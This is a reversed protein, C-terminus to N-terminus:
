PALATYCSVTKKCIGTEPPEELKIDVMEPSKAPLQWTGM